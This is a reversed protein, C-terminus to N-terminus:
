NPSIYRPDIVSLEEMLPFIHDTSVMTLDNINATAAHISDFIGLFDYKRILQNSIREVEQDMPLLEINMAKILDSLDHISDREEERSIVLKSEVLTLISTYNRQDDHLAKQVDSKLWDSEKILALICDTDLYRGAM